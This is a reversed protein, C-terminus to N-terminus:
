REIADADGQKSLPMVLRLRELLSDADASVRENRWRKTVAAASENELESVAVALRHQVWGRVVSDLVDKWPGDSVPEGRITALSGCLTSLDEIM